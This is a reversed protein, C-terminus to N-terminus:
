QVRVTGNTFVVTTIYPGQKKNDIRFYIGTTKVYVHDGIAYDDTVKKTNESVIDIDVQHQKAATTVQWDGVPTINFLMDRVFVDQGPTAM